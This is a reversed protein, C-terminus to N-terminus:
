FVEGRYEPSSDGNQELDYALPVWRPVNPSSDRHAEGDRRSGHPANASQQQESHADGTPSQQSNDDRM